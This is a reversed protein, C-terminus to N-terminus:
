AAQTRLWRQHDLNGIVDEYERCVLSYYAATQGPDNKCIIRGSVAEFALITGATNLNVLDMVDVSPLVACLRLYYDLYEDGPRLPDRFLVAIDLDSGAAVVGGKSSGFITAFIVNSDAKFFRELDAFAIVVPESM